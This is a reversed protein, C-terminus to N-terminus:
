SLDGNNHSSVTTAPPDPVWRGFSAHTRILTDFEPSLTM